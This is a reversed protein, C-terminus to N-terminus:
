VLDQTWLSTLSAKFSLIQRFFIAYIQSQSHIISLPMTSLSKYSLCLDIIKLDPNCQFGVADNCAHGTYKLCRDAKFHVHIVNQHRRIVIYMLYRWHLDLLFIKQLSLYFLTELGIQKQRYTLNFKVTLRQLTCLQIKSYIMYFHLTWMQITVFIKVKKYATFSLIFSLAIFLLHSLSIPDWIKSIKRSKSALPLRMSSAKSSIPCLSIKDMFHVPHCFSLKIGIKFLCNYVLIVDTSFCEYWVKWFLWVDSTIGRSFTSIM